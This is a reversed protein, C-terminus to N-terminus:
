DYNHISRLAILNVSIMVLFINCKLCKRVVSKLMEFFNIRHDPYSNLDKTILLLTANFIRTLIEGIQMTINDSLNEFITKYVLLLEPDRSEPMIESYDHLVRM